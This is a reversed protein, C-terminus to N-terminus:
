DVTKINMEARRDAPLWYMQSPPTTGVAFVIDLPAAALDTLFHAMSSTGPTSVGTADIASHLGLNAGLGMTRDKGALFLMACASACVESGPIVTAIGREHILRAMSLGEDVLGGGSSLVVKDIQNATVAGNFLAADGFEINGTLYLTQGQVEIWAAEAATACLALAVSVAAVQPVKRAAAILKRMPTLTNTGNPHGCPIAMM